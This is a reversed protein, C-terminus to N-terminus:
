GPRRRADDSVLFDNHRLRRLLEEWGIMAHVLVSKGASDAVGFGAAEMPDVQSASWVSGDETSIAIPRVASWVPTGLRLEDINPVFQARCRADDVDASGSERGHLGAHCPVEASRAGVIM